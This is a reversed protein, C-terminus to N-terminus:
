LSIRPSTSVKAGLVIPNSKDYPSYVGIMYDYIGRGIIKTPSPGAGFSKVMRVFNDGMEKARAKTISPNVILVLSLKCGKQTLAPTRSM